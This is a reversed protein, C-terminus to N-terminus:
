RLFCVLILLPHRTLQLCGNLCKDIVMCASFMLSHFMFCLFKIDHVLALILDLM